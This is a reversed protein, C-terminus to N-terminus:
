HYLFSKLGIPKSGQLEERFIQSDMLIGVGLALSVQSHPSENGWVRGHEGVSEPAHFTVRLSWEQSAGECARVKTAPGLSPNCCLILSTDVQGGINISFDVKPQKKFKFYFYNFFNTKENFCYSDKILWRLTSFLRVQLWHVLKGFLQFSLHDDSIFNHDM